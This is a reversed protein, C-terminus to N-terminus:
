LEKILHWIDELLDNIDGIKLLNESVNFKFESEIKDTKEKQKQLEDRLLNVIKSKVELDIDSRIKYDSFRNNLDILHKYIEKINTGLIENLNQYYDMNAENYNLILKIISGFIEKVKEKDM